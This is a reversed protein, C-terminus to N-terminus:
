HNIKKIQPSYDVPIATFAVVADDLVEFNKSHFGRHYYSVQYHVPSYPVM